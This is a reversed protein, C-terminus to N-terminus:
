LIMVGVVGIVILSSAGTFIGGMLAALFGLFAMFGIVKTIM